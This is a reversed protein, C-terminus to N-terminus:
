RFFAVSFVTTAVVLATWLTFRGIESLEALREQM